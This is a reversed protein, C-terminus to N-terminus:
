DHADSSFSFNAKRIRNGDKVSSYHWGVQGELLNMWLM